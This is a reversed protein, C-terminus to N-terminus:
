ELYGKARANKLLSAFVSLDMSPAWQGYKKKEKGRKDTSVHWYPLWIENEGTEPQTIVLFPYYIVGRVDPAEWSPPVDPLFADLVRCKTGSAGFSYTFELELQLQGNCQSCLTLASRSIAELADFLSKTELEVSCNQCRYLKKTAM